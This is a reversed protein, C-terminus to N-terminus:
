SDNQNAFGKRRISRSRILPMRRLPVVDEWCDIILFLFYNLFPYELTQTVYAILIFAILTSCGFMDRKESYVKALRWIALVMIGTPIIGMLYMCYFYSNDLGDHGTAIEQGFLTPLGDQRLMNYLSFTRGNLFLGLATQSINVFMALFTLGLIVLLVTQVIRMMYKYNYKRIVGGLIYPCILAVLSVFIGTYSDSMRFLYISGALLIGDRVFNVKNSVLQVSVIFCTWIFMMRTPGDFGYVYRTQRGIGTRWVLTQSVENFGAYISAFVVGFFLAAYALLLFKRLKASDINRGAFILLSIRLLNLNQTYCFHLISCALLIILTKIESLHYSGNCSISIVFCSLILGIYLESNEYSNITIIKGTYILQLIMGIYFFIKSISLKIKWNEM